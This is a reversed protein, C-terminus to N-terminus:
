RPSSSAAIRYTILLTSANSVHMQRINVSQRHNSLPPPLAQSSKPMFPILQILAFPCGLFLCRKQASPLHPTKM